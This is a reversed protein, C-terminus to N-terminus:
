MNKHLHLQIDSSGQGRNFHAHLQTYEDALSLWKWSDKNQKNNDKNNAFAAFLKRIQYFEMQHRLM